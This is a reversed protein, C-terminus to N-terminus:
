AAVLFSDLLEARAMSLFAVFKADDADEVQALMMGILTHMGRPGIVYFLEALDTEPMAQMDASGMNMLIKEAAQYGDSKFAAALDPSSFRVLSLRINVLEASDQFDRTETEVAIDARVDASLANWAAQEATTLYATM